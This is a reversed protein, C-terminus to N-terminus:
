NPDTLWIDVLRGYIDVEIHKSLERAYQLRKNKASCNSVFWAVKSTKNQAYNVQLLRFTLM